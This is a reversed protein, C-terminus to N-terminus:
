GNVHRRNYIVQVKALFEHYGMTGKMNNCTGCCVLCNTVSYGQNNDIRDLNYGCNGKGGKNYETWTVKDHCYHCQSGTRIFELFGEYTLEMSVPRKRRATNNVMSNYLGEYPRIRRIKGRVESLYCGCSSTHGSILKTAPVGVTAGCACKCVWVRNSFYRMGSDRLATLRGFTKGTIDLRVAM